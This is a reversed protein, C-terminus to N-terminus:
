RGRIFFYVNFAGVVVGVFILSLTWRMSYGEAHGDLWHGLYAGGVMPLVLLLGLVGIYATQAILTPREEDAKKMRRAQREVQRRLEQQETTDPKRESM